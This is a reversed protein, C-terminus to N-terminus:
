LSFRLNMPWSKSKRCFHHLLMPLCFKEARVQNQKELLEYIKSTLIYRGVVDLTGQAELEAKMEDAKDFHDEIARKNRGTIFMM